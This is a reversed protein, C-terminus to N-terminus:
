CVGFLGYMSPKSALRFSQLPENLCNTTYGDQYQRSSNHTYLISPAPSQFARHLKGESNIQIVHKLMNSTETVSESFIADEFIHGVGSRTYILNVYLLLAKFYDNIEGLFTQFRRYIELLM